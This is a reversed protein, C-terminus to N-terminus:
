LPGLSARIDHGYKLGRLTVECRGLAYEYAVTESSLGFPLTVVSSITVRCKAVSSSPLRFILCTSSNRLELVWKSHIAIAPIVFLYSREDAM